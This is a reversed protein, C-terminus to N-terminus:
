ENSTNLYSHLKANSRAVFDRYSASDVVSKPSFHVVIDLKPENCRIEDLRHSLQSHQELNSLYETAPVDLVAFMKSMFESQIRGNKLPVCSKSLFNVEPQYGVRVDKAKIETGNDLLVRVSEDSQLKNYFQQPVNKSQCLEISFKGQRPKIKGLYAYVGTRCINSKLPIFDIRFTDDEFYLNQNCDAPFFDLESMISLCLVRKICKYLNEPGHFIPLRKTTNLITKTVSSIGGISNWKLQTVFINKILSVNQNYYDLLRHCGEGCNFLYNQGPTSLCVSAPEGPAGCGIVHLAVKSAARNDSQKAKNPQTSCNIQFRIATRLNSKFNRNFNVINSRVSLWMNKSCFSVKTYFHKVQVFNYVYGFAKSMKRVTLVTVCSVFLSIALSFRM